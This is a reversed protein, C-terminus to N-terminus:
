TTRRFLKIVIVFFSILLAIMISIKIYGSNTISLAVVGLLTSLTYLLLVTQRQSYGADILRHHLHGRDAEWPAKGSFIRRLIAFATDFIPIGLVIIPVLVAIAAYQKMSGQISITALTFGLFTSGTDGMFIKAPNFNYPLFGLTAGALACTLIVETTRGNIFAIFILFVAAISSVGAALGDLGDIFNIANTVGVIWIITIFTSIGYMELSTIGDPSFPNTVAKIKIGSIVIMIAAIIQFVFKIKADLPKIDDVIGVIVILTTSLLLGIITKNIGVFFLITIIFGLFIALGGMLAMPKKHMRRDDKPTDVAGIKFAIKKVIPTALLAIVFSTIFAYIYNLM